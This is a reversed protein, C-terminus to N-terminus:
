LGYSAKKKRPKEPDAKPPQPDVLKKRAEQERPDNEPLRGPRM